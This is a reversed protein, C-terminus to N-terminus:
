GGGINGTEILAKIQSENLRWGSIFDGTKEDFMVNLDTQQDFYHFVSRKKRFTGSRVKTTSSQLHNEVAIKFLKANQLSYNKQIGFDRAHKIYKKQIQKNITIIHRPIKHKELWPYSVSVKHLSFGLQQFLNKICKKM